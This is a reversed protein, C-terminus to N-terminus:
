KYQVVKGDSSGPGYNNSGYTIDITGETVNLTEGGGRLIGEFRGKFGNSDNQYFICDTLDEQNASWSSEQLSGQNIIRSAILIQNNFTAGRYPRFVFAERYENTNDDDEARIYLVEAANGLLDSTHEYGVSIKTYEYLVGNIKMSITGYGSSESSCGSFFPLVFLFLLKKM